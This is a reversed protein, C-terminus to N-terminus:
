QGNNEDKFKLMIFEPQVGNVLEFTGDISRVEGKELVRNSPIGYKDLGIQSVGIQSGSVNFFIIDFLPTINTPSPNRLVFKYELTKKDKKGSLMFIASKVYEKDINVLSDFKLPILNPLCTKQQQNRFENFEWRLGELETKGDNITQAFTQERGYHVENEQQLLIGWVALGVITFAELIVPIWLPSILWRRIISKSHRQRYNKHKANDAGGSNKHFKDNDMEVDGKCQTINQFDRCRAM